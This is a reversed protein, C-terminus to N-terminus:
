KSQQILIAWLKIEIVPYYTDSDVKRVHIVIDM